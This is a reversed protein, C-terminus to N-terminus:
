ICELLLLPKIFFFFLLLTVKNIFAIECDDIRHGDSHRHFYRPSGREGYLRWDFLINPCLRTLTDIAMVM